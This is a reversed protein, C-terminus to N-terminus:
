LPLWVLLRMSARAIKTCHQWRPQFLIMQSDSECTTTFKNCLLVRSCTSQCKARTIWRIMWNLLEKSETDKLCIGRSHFPTASQKALHAESCPGAQFTRSWLISGRSKDWISTWSTSWSLAIYNEKYKTNKQERQYEIFKKGRKTHLFCFETNLHVLVTKKLLLSNKKASTSVGKLYGGGKLNWIWSKSKLRKM